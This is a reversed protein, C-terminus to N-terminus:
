KMTLMPTAMITSNLIPEVPKTEETIGPAIFKPALRIRKGPSDNPKIQLAYRVCGDRAPPEPEFEDDM